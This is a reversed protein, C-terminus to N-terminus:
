FDGWDKYDKITFEPPTVAKIPIESIYAVYKVNVLNLVDFILWEGHYKIPVQIWRRNDNRKVSKPYFLMSSTMRMARVAPDTPDAIVYGPPLSVLAGEDMKIEM